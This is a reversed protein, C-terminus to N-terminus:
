RPASLDVVFDFHPRETAARVSRRDPTPVDSGGAPAGECARVMQGDAARSAPGSRLSRWDACSSARPAAAEPSRPRSARIEIPVVIAAQETTASAKAALRSSLTLARGETSFAHQRVQGQSALVAAPVLALASLVLPIAPKLNIM